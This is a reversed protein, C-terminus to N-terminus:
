LGSPTIMPCPRYTKESQSKFATPFFWGIVGQGIIVGDPKGVALLVRCGEFVLLRVTGSTMCDRYSSIETSVSASHRSFSFSSYAWTHRSIIAVRARLRGEGRVLPWAFLQAQAM